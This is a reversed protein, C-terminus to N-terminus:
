WGLNKGNPLMPPAYYKLNLHIQLNRYSLLSKREYLCKQRKVVHRKRHPKMLLSALSFNEHRTNQIVVVVARSPRFITKTSYLFIKGSELGFSKGYKM